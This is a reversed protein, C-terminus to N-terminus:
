GSKWKGCAWWAFGNEQIWWDFVYVFGMLFMFACTTDHFNLIGLMVLFVFHESGIFWCVSLGVILVTCFGSCTKVNLRLM